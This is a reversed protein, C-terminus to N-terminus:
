TESCHKQGLDVSYTENREVPVNKLLLQLVHRYTTFKRDNLIDINQKETM